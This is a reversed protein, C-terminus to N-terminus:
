EKRRVLDRAANAIDKATLCYEEILDKRAGSQGFRDKVGIRKVIVPYNEALIEAVASGLGGYISHEEAAIVAGTDKAAKIILEQDIPKITPINLVRVSIGEEKLAEAAGLAESVMTGTAIISLDSGDKLVSGKGLKFEYNDFLVPTATRNLRIYFPGEEQASAKIAEKAEIYDAPVIVRMGPIVRMLAIDELSHHSAGDPSNTLGSHTVVIKVNLIDHAISSRIQEWARGSAFIAYSSAFVTKGGLALGAAMSILNQEACGVNFFREPFREAFKCSKTSVSLDADVVVIEKSSGIELLADGYADRTSKLEGEM